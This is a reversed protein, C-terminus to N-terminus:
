RIKIRSIVKGTKKQKKKTGSEIKQWKKHVFLSVKKDGHYMPAKDQCQYIPKNIRKLEFPPKLFM